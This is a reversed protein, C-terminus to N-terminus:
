PEFGSSHEAPQRRGLGWKRAFVESSTQWAASNVSAGISKHSLAIPWTGLRLGAQHASLCFDLDYLHFGLAADFRVGSSQLRGARAALFVGDLLRVPSPTPGYVTLWRRDSTPSHCVVGSLNPHDQGALGNGGLYWTLQGPYTRQNGAVGVVDFVQLAEQLRRALLWDDLHVDDHVFVLVDDPQAEDIAQNYVQGLPQANGHALKLGLPEFEGLRQVCRGLLSQRAFDEGSLRTATVLVLM